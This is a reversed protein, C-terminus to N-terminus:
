AGSATCKIMIRSIQTGFYRITTGILSQMFKSFAEDRLAVRRECCKDKRFTLYVNLWPYFVFRSLVGDSSLRPFVWFTSCSYVIRAIYSSFYLFNFRLFYMRHITVRKISPTRWPVRAKGKHIILTELRHHCNTRRSLEFSTQGSRGRSYSLVQSESKSSLPGESTLNWQCPFHWGQIQLMLGLLQILTNGM